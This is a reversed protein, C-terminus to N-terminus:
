GKDNTHYIQLLQHVYKHIIIMTMQKKANKLKSKSKKLSRQTNLLMYKVETHKHKIIAKEEQLQNRIKYDQPWFLCKM